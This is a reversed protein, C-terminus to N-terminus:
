GDKEGEKRFVEAYQVGFEKAEQHSSMYVDIWNGKIDGGSDHATYTQGNIVVESGMPIVDRDVAISTGPVLEEGSAGIVIPNGEADVPRNRAWRGCCKKCSCYATLKFEGLSMMEPEEVSVEYIIIKRPESAVQEITKTHVEKSTAQGMVWISLPVAILFAIVASNKKM